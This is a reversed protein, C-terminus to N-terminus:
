KRKTITNQTFIILFSVKRQLVVNDGFKLSMGSTHMKELKVTKSKNKVHVYTRVARNHNGM